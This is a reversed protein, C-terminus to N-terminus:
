RKGGKSGPVAARPYSGLMRLASVQARLSGLAERIKPSESGGALDLYFRYDFPKQPDPRSEIKTLDIGHRAFIELVRFLVGAENRRPIFTVSTKQARRLAAPEPKRAIALFRTYNESHNQIKRRLAKLGYLKGAFESAIAAVDKPASRELSKAAGATDFWVVPKIRPHEAFFRSCQALAQPHSRVMRIDQLRALPRALLAHEVRLYTEGTIHLGHQVLLDYNLHIGGALSTEIPIVGRDARRRKVTEFVAEFTEQPLLGASLPFMKRCALESYAGRVGQFAIKM